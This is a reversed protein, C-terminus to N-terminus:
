HLANLTQHNMSLPPCQHLTKALPPGISDFIVDSILSSYDMFVYLVNDDVTASTFDPRRVPHGANRRRM